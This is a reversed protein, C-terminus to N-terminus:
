GDVNQLLLLVVMWLGFYLVDDTHLKRGNGCVVYFAM